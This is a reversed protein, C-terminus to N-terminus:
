KINGTVYVRTNSIDLATMVAGTVIERVAENNGGECVVVVGRIRPALETVILAQEGGSPSNYIIHKEEISDKSQSKNKNEGDNDVNVDSNEKKENAYVYEIGSELTVLVSSNKSGCIGDVIEKLNAELIKIYEETNKEEYNKNNDKSIFTSLFILVIGGIGMILLWKPKNKEKELFEKLM